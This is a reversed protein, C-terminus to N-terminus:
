MKEGQITALVKRSHKAARFELFWIGQWTGTALRGNTIPISVSAGILASKVHAQSFINNAGYGKMFGNSPKWFIWCVPMDDSGEADHRYLGQRGGKDEPVIRDLSDSMDARVDEDWNENLTLACSTHQAFLHLLGTKITRIEPLQSTIEDTILYSGRSRPKLNLTKQTWSMTASIQNPQQQPLSTQVSPSTLLKFPLHFLPVILNPFFSALLIFVLVTHFIPISTKRPKDRHTQSQPQKPQQTSPPSNSSSLDKLPIEEHAPM